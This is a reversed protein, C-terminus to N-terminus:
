FSRAPVTAHNVYRASADWEALQSRSPEIQSAALFAVPFEEGQIRKQLIAKRAAVIVSWVSIAEPESWIRALMCALLHVAMAGKGSTAAAWISTGDAGVHGAFAGEVQSKGRPNFKPLEAIESVGKAMLLAGLKRATVHASGDEANRKRKSSLSAGLAQFKVPAELKVLSFDFNLNALALTTEQSGSALTCTLRHTDELDEGRLGTSSKSIGHMGHGRRQRTDAEAEAAYYIGEFGDFGDDDDDNGSYFPAYIDPPGVSRSPPRRRPTM